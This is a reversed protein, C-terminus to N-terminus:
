SVRSRLDYLGVQSIDYGDILIRGAAPEVFRFLATALTSKGSGTTGVLGVKAGPKVSFSIGKLVDPLEPSYKIRLGEVTLGGQPWAPPPRPELIAPAEQEIEDTYEVIREVAVIKQELKAFM